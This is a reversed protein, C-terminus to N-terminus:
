YKLPVVTVHLSPLKPVSMPLSISYMCSAHLYIYQEVLCTHHVTCSGALFTNANVGNNHLLFTHIAEQWTNMSLSLCAVILKTKTNCECSM